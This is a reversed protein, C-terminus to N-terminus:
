AEGVARPKREHFGSLKDPNTDPNRINGGLEDFIAVSQRSFHRSRGLGGLWVFHGSLFWATGRPASEATEPQDHKEDFHLETGRQGIPTSNSHIPTSYAGIPGFLGRNAWILRSPLESDKLVVEM